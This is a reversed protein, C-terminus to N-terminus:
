NARLFRLRLLDFQARGYMQRKVCKLRNIQGEVQGQSWPLSCATAIASADQQMSKALSMLETVHSQRARKFWNSLEDAKQQALTKIFDQSLEYALALDPSAQCFQEVYQRQEATLPEKNMVRTGPPKSRRFAKGSSHLRSWQKLPGLIPFLLIRGGSPRSGNSNLEHALTAKHKPKASCNADM